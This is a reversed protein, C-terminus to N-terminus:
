KIKEFIYGTPTEKYKIGQQTEELHSKTIKVSSKPIFYTELNKEDIIYKDDSERNYVAIFKYDPDIFAMSADGHSDNLALTGGVKLYKKCARSIFGAYQSILLDFSEEQEGFDKAYDAEHFTAISEQSYQKHENIFDYVADNAFFPKAKKYSDVYVVKPFVLSPTIHVFSGPYLASKINYKEHLATFLGIRDDDRSTHYKKYLALPDTETMTVMTDFLGSGAWPVGLIYFFRM